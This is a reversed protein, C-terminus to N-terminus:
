SRQERPHHREVTTRRIITPATTKVAGEMIEKIQQAIPEMGTGWGCCRGATDLSWSSRGAVRFPRMPPDRRAAETPRDDVLSQAYRELAENSLRDLAQEKREMLGGRM